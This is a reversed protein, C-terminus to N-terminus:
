ELFARVVEEKEKYICKDCMSDDQKNCKRCLERILFLLDEKAVAKLKMILVANDEPKGKCISAAKKWCSGCLTEWSSIAKGCFPCNAM